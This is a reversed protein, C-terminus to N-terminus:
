RNYVHRVFYSVVANIVTVILTAYALPLLGTIIISESLYDLLYLLGANIVLSFLGLTLFVLPSLLLKILPRLFLNLTTFIAALVALNYYDLSLWVGPVWYYIALLAGLNSIFYILLRGLTRM